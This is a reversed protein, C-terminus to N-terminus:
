VGAFGSVFLGDGPESEEVIQFGGVGFYSSRYLIFAFIDTLGIGQRDPHHWTKGNGQNEGGGRAADYPQHYGEQSIEAGADIHSGPYSDYPAHVRSLNIQDPM